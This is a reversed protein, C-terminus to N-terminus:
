CKLYELLQIMIEQLHNVELYSGNCLKIEM